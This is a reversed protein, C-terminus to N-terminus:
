KKKSYSYIEKKIVNSNKRKFERDLYNYYTGPTIVGNLRLIDSGTAGLVKDVLKVCNSSFLFYKKWKGKSFKYYKADTYENLISAYDTYKNSNDLERNCLWRYSHETIKNLEKRIALKQKETLTIGFAFITKKSHSTCFKLYKNKNQMIILMGDGLTNFLKKSEDDYCAYSYIKNDFYLDAHGISGIVTNKVHIYIELDISKNKDKNSINVPTVYKDLMNNIKTYISYPILMAICTPLTIRFRRKNNFFHFNPFTEKLFDYFYTIGFLILYIGLMITLRKINNSPNFIMIFSFGFDVMSSLLTPHYGKLKQEKYIIYTLLKTIGNLFMYFGFILPFLILFSTRKTFFYLGILLTSFSIVINTNKKTKIINFLLSIFGLLSILISVVLHFIRVSTTPILILTTGVGTFIISNIILSIRSIYNDKM